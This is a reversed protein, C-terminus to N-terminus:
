SPAPPRYTMVVQEINGNIGLTVEIDWYLKGLGTPAYALRYPQWLPNDTRVREISWVAAFPVKLFVDRPSVKTMDYSAVSGALLEFNQFTGAKLKQQAVQLKIILANAEDSTLGSLQRTPPPLSVGQSQAFALCPHTVLLLAIVVAYPRMGPEDPM